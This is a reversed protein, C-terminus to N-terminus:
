KPPKTEDKVKMNVKGPDPPAANPGAAKRKEGYVRDYEAQAKEDRLKANEEMEKDLEAQRSEEVEEATKGKGSSILKQEKLKELAAKDEVNVEQGEVYSVGGFSFAKSAKYM